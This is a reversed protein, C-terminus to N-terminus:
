VARHAGDGFGQAVEVLIFDSRVHNAAPLNDM